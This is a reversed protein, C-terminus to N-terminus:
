RKKARKAKRPGSVKEPRRSPKTKETPAARKREWYLKMKESQLKRAEASMTRGRKKRPKSAVPAPEASEAVQGPAKKLGRFLSRLAAAEEELEKLRAIAGLRALRHFEQPDLTTTPL